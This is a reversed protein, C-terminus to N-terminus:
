EFGRGCPEMAYSQLFEAAVFEMWEVTEKRFKLESQWVVLTTPKGKKDKVAQLLANSEHGFGTDRQDVTEKTVPGTCVSLTMEDTRSRISDTLFQENKSINKKMKKTKFKITGNCVQESNPKSKSMSKIKESLIENADNTRVDWARLCVAWSTSDDESSNPFLERLEKLTLNRIDGNLCFKLLTGNTRLWWCRLTLDLVENPEKKNWKMKHCNTLGKTLRRKTSEIADEEDIPLREQHKEDLEKVAANLEELFNSTKAEIKNEETSQVTQDVCSMESPFSNSDKSTTPDNFGHKTTDVDKGKTNNSFHWTLTSKTTRCGSAAHPRNKRSIVRCCSTLRWMDM